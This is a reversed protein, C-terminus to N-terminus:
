HTAGRSAEQRSRPPRSPDAPVPAIPASTPYETGTESNNPNGPDQRLRRQPQEGLHANVAVTTTKRPRHRRAPPSHNPPRASSSHLISAVKPSNVSHLLHSSASDDTRNHFDGGPGLRRRSSAVWPGPLTRSPGPCHTM